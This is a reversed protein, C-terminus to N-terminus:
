ILIYLDRGSAKSQLPHGSLGATAYSTAYDLVGKGFIGAAYKHENEANWAGAMRGLRREIHDILIAM